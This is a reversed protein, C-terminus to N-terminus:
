IYVSKFTHFILSIIFYLNGFYNMFLSDETQLSGAMVLFIPAKIGSQNLLFNLLNEIDVSLLALFSGFASFHICEERFRCIIVKFAGSKKPFLSM